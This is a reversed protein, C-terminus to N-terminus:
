SVLSQNYTYVEANSQKTKFVIYWTNNAHNQSFKNIKRQRSIKMYLILTSIIGTEKKYIPPM